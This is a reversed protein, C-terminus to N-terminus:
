ILKKVIENVLKEEGYISVGDDSESYITIKEKGILFTVMSIESCGSLDWFDDLKKANLSKLISNIKEIQDQSLNFGVKVEIKKKFPWM